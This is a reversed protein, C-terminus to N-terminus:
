RPRWDGVTVRELIFTKVTEFDVMHGYHPGSFSEAMSDVMDARFVYNNEKLWKLQWHLAESENKWDYKKAADATWVFMRLLRDRDWNRMHVNEHIILGMVAKDRRSATAWKGGDWYWKELDAQVLKYVDNPPVEITGNPNAHYFGEHLGPAVRKVYLRDPAVTYDPSFCGGCFILMLFLLMNKM